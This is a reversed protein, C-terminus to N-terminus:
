LEISFEKLNVGRNILTTKLSSLYFEKKMDTNQIIIHCALFSRLRWGNKSKGGWNMNKKTFIWPIGAMRAAIAESYDPAYHFSHILHPNIERLRKSIKWCKYIGSIRNSMSNTFQFIHILGGRGTKM